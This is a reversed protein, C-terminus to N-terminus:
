MENYIIQNWGCKNVRINICWLTNPKIIIIEVNSVSGLCFSGKNSILVRLNFWIIETVISFGLTDPCLTVVPGVTPGPLELLYTYKLDMLEEIALHTKWTKCMFWHTITITRETGLVLETRLARKDRFWCIKLFYFFFVQVHLYKESKSLFGTGDVTYEDNCVTVPFWLVDLTHETDLDLAKTYHQVVWKTHFSLAYCWPHTLITWSKDFDLRTVM